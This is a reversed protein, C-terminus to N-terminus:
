HKGSAYEGARWGFVTGITLGFGGLYGRTLINGSIIEGTAFINEFEGDSTLVRAEKNVKLGMYTFTLGPKLPYAYFPPTDIKRAWHSKPPQIGVTHCEDLISLNCNGKEVVAQNYSNITNVAKEKDIELQSLLPDLSMATIPPYATPMFDNVMKSDIIAYAIQDPQEAILQGWIAYRKPWMDEGEDYFREGRKNLVIGVPIADIRTVIGGDFKPARADVAVMHGGKKPGVTEAGYKILQFLPIGRNHKTGRVIFNNAREGWVEKLKDVNAEFGGSALILNKVPIEREGEKSYVVISECRNDKINFDVLTSSYLVKVGLKEAVRYYTNVLAKGGGLFFANTRSLGLTGRISGKFIIGHNLMWDPISESEDIVMNVLQQNFGDGSVGKLDNFLEIKSYEGSTFKDESSHAYRIDRTYKTNGGRENPPAAEILLVKKGLEAATISAVLGANGGGVVIVDYTEM